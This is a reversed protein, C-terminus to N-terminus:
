EMESMANFKSKIEGDSIKEIDLMMVVKVFDEPVDFCHVKIYHHLLTPFVFLDEGSPVAVDALVVSEDFLGRELIESAISYGCIECTPYGRQVNVLFKHSKLIMLLKELFGPKLVMKGCDHRALSLDLKRIKM